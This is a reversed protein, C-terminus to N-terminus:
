LIVVHNVHHNPLGKNGNTNEKKMLDDVVEEMEEDSDTERVRKDYGICIGADKAAKKIHTYGEIGYNSDEYIISIFEWGLSSCCSTSPILNEYRSSPFLM